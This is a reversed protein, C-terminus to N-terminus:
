NTVTVQWAGVGPGTGALSRAETTIDVDEGVTYTLPGGSCDGLWLGSVVPGCTVVQPPQVGDEITVRLEGTFPPPGIVSFSLSIVPNAHANPVTLTCSAVAPAIGGCSQDYHNAQVTPVFALAGSVVVLAAMTWAGARRGRAVRVEM